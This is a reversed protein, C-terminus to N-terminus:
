VTGRLVEAPNARVIRRQAYRSAVVAILAVGAAIWVLPEYPIALVTTPPAVPNVDFGRMLAATLGAALLFGVLLGTIM